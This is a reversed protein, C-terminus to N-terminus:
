ARNEGDEYVKIGVPVGSESAGATPKEVIFDCRSNGGSRCCDLKVPGGVLRSVAAREMECIEPHDPALDPFPCTFVTLRTGGESEALIGQANLAASLADVADPEPSADVAARLDDAMRASVRALVARTQEPGVTGSMEELILRCLREASQGFWQRAKDTLSFVDAPRGPGGRRKRCVLWDEAVLRNVQQRVATTTVGLAAVLETITGEGQRALSALIQRAPGGLEAGITQPM